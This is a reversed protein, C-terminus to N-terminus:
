DVKKDVFYIPDKLLKKYAVKWMEVSNILYSDAELIKGKKMNASDMLLELRDYRQEFGKFNHSRVKMNMNNGEATVINYVIYEGFLYPPEVLEEVAHMLTNPRLGCGIFLVKGNVDKLKSFPSHKGAPTDDLHHESLLLKAKNGIGAVSHTPHISRIIDERVRFCQTLGGVCSPTKDVDFNPNNKGATEYSLTPMLLTGNKGLAALLAETVIAAKNIFKGLSKLSSHVLLVDGEIVGLNKLDIIIKDKPSEYNPNKKM